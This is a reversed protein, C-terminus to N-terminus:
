AGRIRDPNQEVFSKWSNKRFTGSTQTLKPGTLHIQHAVAASLADTADLSTPLTFGPIMKGLMYAVQEKAANGNGTVAKKIAKPFYETTPVGSARLALIAAAQARGLKLMAIPDQGYVPTEVAAEEPRFRNVLSTVEQFIRLLRDSHDEIGSLQLAECHHVVLGNGSRSVVALGTTRSGPDVGIIVRSIDAPDPGNTM